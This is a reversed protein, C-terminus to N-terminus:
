KLKGKKAKNKQNYLKCKEPNDKRWQKKYAAIKAKNKERYIKRKDAHKLNSAKAKLRAKARVAEMEEPTMADRKAQNELKLREKNKLRWRKGSDRRSQKQEETSNERVLKAKAANKKRHKHNYIKNYARTKERNEERWKAASALRKKRAEPSESKKQYRETSERAHEALMQAHEDKFMKALQLEDKSPM